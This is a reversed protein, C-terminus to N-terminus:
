KKLETNIKNQLNTKTAEDLQLTNTKLNEDHMKKLHEHILNSQKSFLSCMTCIALHIKLQIAEKFSLVNHQKKSTLLTADKCSIHINKKIAM